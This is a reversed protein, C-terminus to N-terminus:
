TSSIPGGSDPMPKEKLIEGLDITGGGEGAIIHVVGKPYKEIRHGDRLEVSLPPQSLIAKMEAENEAASSKILGEVFEPSELHSRLYKLNEQYADLGVICFFAVAKYEELITAKPKREDEGYVGYVESRLNLLDANLSAKLQALSDMELHHAFENRIKRLVTAASFIRTPILALAEALAIKMSFTFDTASTLRPYRPLFSKLLADLRDEVILATVIALLRDDKLQETKSFLEPLPNHRFYRLLPEIFLSEGKHGSILGM